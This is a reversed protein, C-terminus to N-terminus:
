LGVEEAEEAQGRLATTMTEVLEVVREREGEGMQALNERVWKLLISHQRLMGELVKMAELLKLQDAQEM